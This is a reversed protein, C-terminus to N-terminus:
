HHFDVDLRIASFKIFKNNLYVLDNFLQEQIKIGNGIDICDFIVKGYVDYSFTDIKRVLDYKPESIEVLNLQDDDGLFFHFEFQYSKNIEINYDDSFVVIRLGNVEITVEEAIIPDISIVKGKYITM